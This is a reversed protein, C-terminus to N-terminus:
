QPGGGLANLSPKALPPLRSRDKFLLTFAAVTPAKGPKRGGFHKLAAESYGHDAFPLLPVLWQLLGETVFLQQELSAIRPFWPIQSLLDFHAPVASRTYRAVRAQLLRRQNATLRYQM